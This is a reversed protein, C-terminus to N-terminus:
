KLLQLVGQPLQNAQALMAQASQVLINNKTFTTMELAMDADRIRSEASTLNERTVQVNNITHELRNQTAGLKARISSVKEIAQDLQHIANNADKQTTVKLSEIGLRVTSLEAVDIMVNQNTNPGIQFALANNVINFNTDGATISTEYTFRAGGHEFVGNTTTLTKQFVDPQYAGAADKKNLQVKAEAELRVKVTGASTIKSTDISLGAIIQKNGDLEISKPEEVPIGDPGIVEIRASKTGGDNVFNRVNVTYLGFAMANADTKVSTAGSVSFVIDGQQLGAAPQVMTDKFVVGSINVQYDGSKLNPDVIEINDLAKSTNTTQVYTLIASTGDLLKRTNFETKEAVSDIEKILQDIEKQIEARDSDTNTDNAGQVALERMRQLMAHVETMAGEATQMLSVGDLANREAVQLGRIQSRMKESIALGAADDSARNIRLGSSLKELNKGVQFQNNSLNRYANLAQINHNIRM